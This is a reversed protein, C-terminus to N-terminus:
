LFLLFYILALQKRADKCHVNNLLYGLTAAQILKTLYKFIKKNTNKIGLYGDNGKSDM